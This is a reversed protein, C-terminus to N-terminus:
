KYYEAFYDMQEDRNARGNDAAKKSLQKEM